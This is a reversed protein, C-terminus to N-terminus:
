AIMFYGYVLISKMLEKSSYFIKSLLCKTVLLKSSSTEHIGNPDVLLVLKWGEAFKVCDM